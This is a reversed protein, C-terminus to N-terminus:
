KEIPKSIGSSIAMKKKAKNKEHVGLTLHNSTAIITGDPKIAQAQYQSPATPTYSVTFKGLDDTTTKGVLKDLISQEISDSKIEWIAIEANKIPVVL